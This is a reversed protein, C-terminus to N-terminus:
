CIFIFLSIRGSMKAKVVRAHLKILAPCGGAEGEGSGALVNILRGEVSVAVGRLAGSVNVGIGVKVDVDVGRDVSVDVDVGM